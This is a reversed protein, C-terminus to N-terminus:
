FAVARDKQVRRRLHDKRIPEAILDVPRGLIAELRRTLADIHGFYAFGRTHADPALRVLIDVDSDEDAEGRAVSGVVALSSIGAARLDREHDRLKAIIDGQKM